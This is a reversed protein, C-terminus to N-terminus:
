GRARKPRTWLKVVGGGCATLVGEECFALGTCPEGHLKHSTVPAIKRTDRGSAAGAMVRGLGALEGVGLEMGAAAAAAAAAAFHAEGEFPRRAVGDESTRRSATPSSARSGGPSPSARSSRPAAGMTALMSKSASRMMGSPSLMSSSSSPPAVSPAMYPLPVPVPPPPPTPPPTPAPSDVRSDAAARDAVDLDWLCLRCDQGVSGFRLVEGPANPQLLDDYRHDSASSFADRTSGPGPGPGSGPTEDGADDGDDEGGGGFGDPWALPDEAAAAIWSAHGEARAAVRGRAVDYIEVADAEGGALVFRGGRAWGVADLGGFYSKFGGVLAPRDRDRVDLVRCLGDGGAVALRDGDPSFSADRLPAAGLHWRAFPNSAGERRGSTRSLANYEGKIPPFCPDSTADRDASYAYVNGDAHASVFAVLADGGDDDDADLSRPRWAVAACRSANSPVERAAAASGGVGGGGDTNFRLTGAPLTKGTTESVLARLSAVVVEGTALGVLLDLEDVRRAPRHAHCTVHTGPFTLVRIPRDNPRKNQATAANFNHVLLADGANFVLCRHGKGGPLTAVTVKTPCRPNFRTPGDPHCWERALHYAGDTARFRTRAGPPSPATELSSRRGFMRETLTSSERPPLDDLFKADVADDGALKPNSICRYMWGAGLSSPGPPPDPDVVFRRARADFLPATHRDDGRSCVGESSSVPRGWGCKERSVCFDSVQARNGTAYRSGRIPTTLANERRVRDGM